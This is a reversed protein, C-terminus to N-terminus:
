IVMKQSAISHGSLRAGKYPMTRSSCCAVWLSRVWLALCRKIFMEHTGPNTPSFKIEWKNWNWIILTAVRWETFHFFVLDWAKIFEWRFCAKRSTSPSTVGLSRRMTLGWTLGWPVPCPPWGSRSLMQQRHKKEPLKEPERYDNMTPYYHDWFNNFNSLYM